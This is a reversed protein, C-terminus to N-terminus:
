RQMSACETPALWLGEPSKLHLSTAEGEAVGTTALCSEVCLNISCRCPLHRIPRKPHRHHGYRCSVCHVVARRDGSPDTGPRRADRSVRDTTSSPRPGTPDARWTVSKCRYAQKGGLFFSTTRWPGSPTTCRFSWAERGSVLRGSARPSNSGPARAAVRFFPSRNRSFDRNSV